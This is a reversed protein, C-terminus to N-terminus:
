YNRRLIREPQKLRLMLKHSTYTHAGTEALVRPRHRDSLIDHWQLLSAAPFITWVQLPNSDGLEAWLACLIPIRLGHGELPNSDRQILDVITLYPLAFISDENTVADQNSSVSKCGHVLSPIRQFISSYNIRNSCVNRGNTGSCM